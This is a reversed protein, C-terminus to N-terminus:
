RCGKVGRTRLPDCESRSPWIQLQPCLESLQTALREIGTRESAYHGTLILGIGVARAEIATHFRAEGTIFLDCGAQRADMLFEDAAGCAIAVGQVPQDPVGVIQLCDTALLLKLRGGVSDLTEGGACRGFRGATARLPRIEELQLSEALQQNIGVPANDYATHASYVVIRRRILECLVREAPTNETLRQIPRFLIPHHTVILDVQSAIAEAVVDETLTLCTMIRSLDRDEAAQGGGLLLGVNDWSEALSLPALRELQALVHTLRLPSVEGNATRGQSM